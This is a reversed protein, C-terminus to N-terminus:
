QTNNMVDFVGTFSDVAIGAWGVWAAGSGSGLLGIAGWWSQPHRDM